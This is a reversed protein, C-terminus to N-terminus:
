YSKSIQELECAGFVDAATLVNGNLFKAGDQLWEDEMYQLDREMEAQYKAIKGAAASQGTIYKEAWLFRFYLSCSSRIGNHQWSLFEDVRARQCLDSPYFREDIYKKNAFYRFNLPLLFKYFKIVIKFPNIM